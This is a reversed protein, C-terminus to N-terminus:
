SKVLVCRIKGGIAVNGTLNVFNWDISQGATVEIKTSKSVKYSIDGDCLLRESLYGYKNTSITFYSEFVSDTISKDSCDLEISYSILYTGTVSFTPKNAVISSGVASTQTLTLKGASLGTVTGFVYNTSPLKFVWINSLQTSSYNLTESPQVKLNLVGSTINIIDSCTASYRLNGANAMIITKDSAYKVGGIEVYSYVNPNNGTVTGVWEANYMVFYLGSLNVTIDGGAVTMTGTNNVITDWNITTLGNVSSLNTRANLHQANTFSGDFVRHINIYPQEITNNSSYNLTGALVDVSVTDGGNHTIVGCCESFYNVNGANPIISNELSGYRNGSLVIRSEVSPDVDGTGNISVGYTYLYAGSTGITITTNSVSVNNNQTITTNWPISTVGSLVKIGARAYLYDLTLLVQSISLIYEVGSPTKYYLFGDPKSYIQGNGTGNNTNIVSTYINKFSSM